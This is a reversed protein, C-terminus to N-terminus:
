MRARGSSRKSLGNSPRNGPTDGASARCGILVPRVLKGESGKGIVLVGQAGGQMVCEQLYLHSSQRILMGPAQSTQRTFFASHFAEFISRNVAAAVGASCDSIVCREIIVKAGNSAVVACGQAQMMIVNRLTLTVGEGTVLLRTKRLVSHKSATHATPATPMQGEDLAQDVLLAALDGTSERGEITMSVNVKISGGTTRIGSGVTLVDGPSASAVREEFTGRSDDSAWGRM